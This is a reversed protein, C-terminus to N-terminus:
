SRFFGVSRHDANNAMLYTFEYWCDPDLLRIPQFNLYPRSMKILEAHCPYFFSDVGLPFLNKGKLTAGMNSDIGTSSLKKTELNERTHTFFVETKAVDSDVHKIGVIDISLNKKFSLYM